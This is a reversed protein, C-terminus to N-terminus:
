SSATRCAAVPWAAARVARGARKRRTGASTGGSRQTLDATKPLHPREHNLTLKAHDEGDGARMGRHTM